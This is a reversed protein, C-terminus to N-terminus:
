RPSHRRSECNCKIRWGNAIKADIASLLISVPTVKINENEAITNSPTTQPKIKYGNAPTNCFRRRSTEFHYKFLNDPSEQRENM